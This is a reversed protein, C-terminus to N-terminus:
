SKKTEEQHSFGLSVVLSWLCVSYYYYNFGKLLAKGHTHRGTATSPFFPGRHCVNNTPKHNQRLKKM